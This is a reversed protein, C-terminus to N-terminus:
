KQASTQQPANQRILERVVRVIEERTTAGKQLIRQVFGNLRQRDEATVDKATVVVIPIQSWEPKKHLEEVFTFGDMEPMMLDLLILCPITQSVRELAIRGNAAEMVRCGEKQLMQCTMQLTFPDDEIVLIPAQRNEPTYKQLISILHDREIPKTLYDQVGLAYGMDKEDLMTLMIVPTNRLAPDEKIAALVAWGDMEPMIVDLTIIAPKLEKALRLGEKGNPATVLRFGEKALYRCLLDRSASDDDIILITKDSPTPPPEETKTEAKKEKPDKVEAPIRLTFTSGKGPQSAVTADGGMMRCFKRTIDLGLGTGGYQKTTSSDAQSFPQFLKEMQEPTIGIGTDSVQMVIWATQEKIERFARLTVTGQRTFKCANSLLNFLGQRIKTLDARMSGIDPSIEQRLINSNKEVLPQITSVVEDLMKRLDFTELFLEMKGAEVKSLDLVNNILSLLHKGAAHIKNLDAAAAENGDDQADEMLMESYGIIANMPTRLEHSMNALFASKARNAADADARAKQAEKASAALEATRQDVTKELTLSWDELRQERAQIEQQMHNFSRTLHAVEDDGKPSPLSIERKGKALEQAAADLQRIPRTISRAILTVVLALFVFGLLCIAAGKRNLDYLQAMLQERTFVIGLSCRAAKMPAYAIWGPKGTIVSIYSRFGTEGRLMRRGIDRLVQNNQTEAISFITENMVFRPNPHSILTGQSSIIFAYSDAPANQECLEKLYVNLWHLSVDATIIGAFRNTNGDVYFPVAFTAMLTNGGGEDYYPETWVAQKLEKPLMFWDQIDYRRGNAGLDLTKVENTTTSLVYAYPAYHVISPDYAIASGYVEENDILTHKLLPLLKDRSPSLTEVARAVDQVVKTVALVMTEVRYASATALQIAKKELEKELVMRTWYYNFGTVMGMVATAGLLMLITMRLCLPLKYLM